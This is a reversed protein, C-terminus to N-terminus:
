DIGDGSDHNGHLEDFVRQSLVKGFGPLKSFDKPQAECMSAVSHFHTAMAGSKDWGVGQLCFAVRRVTSAKGLTAMPAPNHLALHSHHKDWPKSFYHYLSLLSECTHFPSSTILITVNTKLSLTTLYGDLELGYFQSTGLVTPMWRNGFKEELYGSEWNTRFRGELIIFPFEYHSVLKPLQEGSLRGQRIDSLIGKLSKHEVGILCPGGPGEGTFCFDGAPLREIKAQPRTRHSQIIRLLDESSTGLTGRQNGPLASGERDDILIM